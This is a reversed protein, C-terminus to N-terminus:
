FITAREVILEMGIWDTVQSSTHSFLLLANPWHNKEECNTENRLIDGHKHVLLFM